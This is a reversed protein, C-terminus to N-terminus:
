VYCGGSKGFTPVYTHYHDILEKSLAGAKTCNTTPLEVNVMAGILESPTLVSSSCAEALLDGGSVALSHIYDM